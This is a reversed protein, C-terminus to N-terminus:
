ALIELHGCFDIHCFSLNRNSKEDSWNTVGWSEFTRKPIICSEPFRYLPQSWGIEMSIAAMTIKVQSIDPPTPIIQFLLRYKQRVSNGSHIMMSTLIRFEKLNSITEGMTFWGRSIEELEDLLWDTMKTVSQASEHRFNVSFDWFVIKIIVIMLLIGIIRERSSKAM